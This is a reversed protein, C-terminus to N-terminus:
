ARSSRDIAVAHRRPRVFRLMAYLGGLAPLLCVLFLTSAIRELAREDTADALGLANAVIGVGAAGLAYGTRQVTPIAGSMRETDEPAVAAVARRLIFTWAMGFGGGQVAVCLAVSWLPGQAVSWALGAVSASVLATGAGILLPDRHQPAGSVLAACGSWAIAGVVLVSGAVLESVGHLRTVLLPGYLGMVTTAAAFCLVLTLASGAPQGLDFARRPLLRSEGHGADARLFLGLLLTGVLLLAVTRAGAALDVGALAISVIGAALLSLPLVPVRRGPVDAATGSRETAGARGLLWLALCAAQVAFFVFGARWSALTAFAGGIMPGSLASVMWATSVLAMVRATLRRPFLTAIAVFSLAALGGGGLGQALRGVLLIDMRPASASVICGLAYLSAAAIMPRRVGRRAALLGSTAGVVISGIEYLVVSWPILRAGGIEGVIAPMMTAVILADAAHLWVGLCVLALSGAHDRRFVESWSAGEHEDDSM